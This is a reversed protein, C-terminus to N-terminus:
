WDAKVTLTSTWDNLTYHGIFLLVNTRIFYKFLSQNRCLLILQFPFRFPNSLSCIAIARARYSYSENLISVYRVKKKNWILAYISKNAQAKKKLYRFTRKFM